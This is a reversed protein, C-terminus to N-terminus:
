LLIKLIDNWTNVRVIGKKVLEEDSINKNHYASMLIKKSIYKSELNDVRDDIQVDAILINKYGTFIFTKPNLFPFTKLLFDYKYKFYMGSNQEARFMVCNSCIIIEYLESLQKIAEVAGDIMIPNEYLNKDKLFEYFESRKGEPIVEDIYYNKFDEIKYDSKLFRNLMSLFGSDCIVEDVDIVLTKKQM